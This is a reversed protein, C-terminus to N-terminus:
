VKKVAKPKPDVKKPKVPEAAVKKPPKEILFAGGGSTPCKMEAMENIKDM